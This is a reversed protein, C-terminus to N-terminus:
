RNFMIGLSIRTIEHNYDILSEGYGTFFNAVYFFDKRESPMSLRINLAGHGTKINGRMMTNVLWHNNFQHRYSIEAYGYYKYIDPNDDARADLPNNKEDEPFRYWFKLYWLSNGDSAPRFPAFYARNWSRSLPLLQGNSEHEIGADFGWKDLHWTRLMDDGPLWRYFIEPNYNTERFPSSASRNYAQWFSNQTYAFYLNNIPTRQKVSLQFNVETAEGHWQKSYTLPMIFNDKHLSLGTGRQIATFGPYEDNQGITITAAPALTPLLILLTGFVTLLCCQNLFILMGFPPIM